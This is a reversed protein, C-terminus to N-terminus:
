SGDANERSTRVARFVIFSHFVPAHSICCTRGAVLGAAAIQLGREEGKGGGHCGLILCPPSLVIHDGKRVVVVKWGVRLARGRLVLNEEGGWVKRAEGAALGPLERARQLLM